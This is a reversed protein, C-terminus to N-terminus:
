EPSSWVQDDCVAVLDREEGIEPHSGLLQQTQM